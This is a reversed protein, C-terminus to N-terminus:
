ETKSCQSDAVEEHCLIERLSYFILVNFMSSM